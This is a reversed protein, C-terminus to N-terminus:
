TKQFPNAPRPTASAPRGCAQLQATLRLLEALEALRAEVAASTLAREVHVRGSIGASDFGRMTVDDSM